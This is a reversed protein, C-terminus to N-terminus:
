DPPLPFEKLYPLYDDEVEIQMTALYRVVCNYFSIALILDNLCEMNMANKLATMTEETASLDLTMERAARLVTKALQDLQNDRGHSEDIMGRIDEDSVGFDRGIKIHHSFEYEAGTLYGVQLIALERLRPDLKSNHRIYGGLSSFKRAAMPSHALVRYLNINRNLVDQDKPELDDINLYPLRAM